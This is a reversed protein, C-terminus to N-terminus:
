KPIQFYDCWRRDTDWNGVIAEPEGKGCHGLHPHDIRQFHWCTGCTVAVPRPIPKGEARNLCWPCFVVEGSDWLWVPGCQKCTAQKTFRSPVKGQNLERRLVMSRALAMFTETTYKGTRFKEIDKKTLVDHLAAPTIPQDATAASLAELLKSNDEAYDASVAINNLNHANQTNHTNHTYSQQTSDMMGLVERWSM